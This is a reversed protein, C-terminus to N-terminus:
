PHQFPHRRSGPVHSLPYPPKSHLCSSRLEFGLVMGFTTAIVTVTFGSSNPFLFLSQQGQQCLELNM